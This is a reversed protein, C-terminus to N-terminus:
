ENNSVLVLVRMEFSNGSNTIENKCRYGVPINTHLSGSVNFSILRQNLDGPFANEM